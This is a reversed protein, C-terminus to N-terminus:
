RYVSEAVYCVVTTYVTIVEHNMCLYTRRGQVFQSIKDDTNM